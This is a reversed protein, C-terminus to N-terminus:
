PKPAVFPEFFMERGDVIACYNQWEASGPTRCLTVDTVQAEDLYRGIALDYQRPLTAPEKLTGSAYIRELTAGPETHWVVLFFYGDGFTRCINVSGDSCRASVSALEAFRDDLPATSGFVATVDETEAVAVDNPAESFGTHERLVFGDETWEVVALVPSDYGAAATEGALPERRRELLCVYVCEADSWDESAFDIGSDLSLEERLWLQAENRLETLRAHEIGDSRDIRDRRFQADAASTPAPDGYGFVRLVADRVAKATETVSDRVDESVAMATGVGALSLLLAAALVAATRRAFRVRRAPRPKPEGPAASLILDDDINSIARLMAESYNEKM